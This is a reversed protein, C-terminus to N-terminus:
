QIEYDITCQAEQATNQGLRIRGSGLLALSERHLLTTGTDGQDVYTGNTSHDELVFKGHKFYISCHKRSIKAHRIKLSVHSKDRGVIFVPHESDVQYAKGQHALSLSRIHGNAGNTSQNQHVVTAGLSHDLHKNEWNLRYIRCPRTAGKMTMRAILDTPPLPTDGCEAALAFEDVLIEKARAVKTLFAANNVVDGFLDAEHVVVNGHSLGTKLEINLDQVLRNMEIASEAATGIDDFSCMIEDGITKIVKGGHKLCCAGLTEMTLHITEQARRNGLDRYLRSSGVIDSFLVALPKSPLPM